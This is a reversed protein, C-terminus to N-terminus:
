ENQDYKSGSTAAKGILLSIGFCALFAWGPARLIGLLAAFLLYTIVAIIAEDSTRGNAV